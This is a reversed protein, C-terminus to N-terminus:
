RDLGLDAYVAEYGEVVRAWTYARVTEAGAAALRRALEDDATVRRLADAFARVRQMETVAHRGRPVDRVQEFTADRLVRVGLRAAVAESEARRQAYPTRELM